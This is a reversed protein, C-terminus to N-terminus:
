GERVPLGAAGAAAGLVERIMAPTVTRTSINRRSPHYCGFLLLEGAGEAPRLRVV